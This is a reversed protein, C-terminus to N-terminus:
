FAARYMALVDDVSMDRPNNDMLRHIAHAEAAWPPLQDDTAGLASLRMQVGLYACWASAGDLLAAPSDHRLGLATAIEATKDATAPQNFALVHRFIM